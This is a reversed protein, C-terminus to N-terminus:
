APRQGIPQPRLDCLVARDWARRCGVLRLVSLHAFQGADGVVRASSAARGPRRLVVCFGAAGRAADRVVFLRHAALAREASGHRVHDAAQKGRPGARGRCLGRPAGYPRRRAGGARLRSNRRCRGRDHRDLSQAGPDRGRGPRAPHLSLGTVDMLRMVLGDALPSGAGAILGLLAGFSASIAAAVLCILLFYRCGYVIRSFLDRGVEDTGFWHEASPPRLRMVPNIALPDHPAILPALAACGVLVLLVLGGFAASRNALLRSAFQALRSEPEFELAEDSVASV